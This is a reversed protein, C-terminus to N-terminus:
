RPRTWGRPRHGSIRERGKKWQLNEMIGDVRTKDLKTLEKPTKELAGVLIQETTYFDETNRLLWRQIVGEWIDHEEFETNAHRQQEEQEESLWWPEGQNYGHLAEAWLQDRWQELQTISVKNLVRIVWFRRNGTPDVLFEEKNTTGGICFGRHWIESLISYPLRYDDSEKSLFAKVVDAGKKTTVRELEAWEIFWKSHFEQKWGEGEIDKDSDCFWQKGVLTKFATSKLLGQPGSLILANESKCGPQMARAVLSIGWKHWYVPDLKGESPIAAKQIQEWRKVCDWPPLSCLYERVPHFRNEGGVVSLARNVLEASPAIAYTPNKEIAECLRNLKENDIAENDFFVRHLMENYRLLGGYDHRLIEAVTHLTNRLGGHQNKPLNDIWSPHPSRHGTSSTAQDTSGFTNPLQGTKQNRLVDVPSSTRQTPDAGIKSSSPTPTGHITSMDKIDM